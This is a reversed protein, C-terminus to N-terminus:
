LPYDPHVGLRGALGDAIAQRVLALRAQKGHLHALISLVTMYIRRNLAYVWPTSAQCHSEFYAGNRTGYYARFDSGQHLLIAFSSAQAERVNWSTELDQLEAATVLAIQGGAQTIRYSYETDDAYLVFDSRPLGFNQALARHFLLGSYPAVHLVVQAPLGGRVRPRGWPTRRWIKYPVDLVHFGRFSGPRPNVYRLPVGAAVDIQHGRRFALVALRDPPCQARLGAYAHLLAPLCGPAPRNDDDLLWLYEAGLDLARQMGAAFGGASGTNRGMEVVDVFDGYAAVLEDRVPWHAGNDVVVVKGVGQAPLADLVQRLLASRNAYTVIVTTVLSEIM